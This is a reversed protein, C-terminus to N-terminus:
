KELLAKVFPADTWPVSLGEEYIVDRGESILALYKRYEEADNFHQRRAVETQAKRRFDANYKFHAFILERPSLTIDTLFHLGASVRMWPQYKLLAIKQAVFLDARSGAILRHRLASTWTPMNSFPGRGTWNSLFPERDVFGAEAFPDTKFTAKALSGKPYMDLMFIRAADVGQFDPTKLLDPLTQTQKEQWVLLEDADAVMSWKGVRFAAMLAQQWAVGYYSLSYDTDVSFLAVDPQEMLYELTGDDSCNDVILFGGVGLKRYHALFQPLMFMENRMCAVVAVEADRAADLKDQSSIMELANSQYILTVDQYSPWIKKPTLEKSQLAAMAPLQAEQADLHAMKIPAALSADFSNVWRAIPFAKSWTRRRLAVRHDEDAPRIGRLALLDGLLKDEMFSVQELYQGEPSELADLTAAMATRSVTYGSGGDAYTSPEPSKDLEFRGRESTSKENHWARDTEGRHRTLIRGHFDYKRYSLSHFFEEPNLFCDDDIKLLYGFNTNEHVWRITAMTKQPLGEYDDPADVHLVDGEIRGDGNGVIIVYPVDLAKLLSLWGERMPPIRTTLNPLCSFVTVLTDFLPSGDLKSPSDSADPLAKALTPLTKAALAYQKAAAPDARLSQLAMRPAPAYELASLREDDLAAVQTKLLEQLTKLVADHGNHRALGRILALILGLGLFQSRRGSLIRLDRELPEIQAPTVPKAPAQQLLAHLLRSARLQAQYYPARPVHPYRAPLAEAAVAVMEDSVPAAGPFAMHRLTAEETNLGAVALSATDPGQGAPLQLGSPGLLERRMRLAEPTGYRTFLELARDLGPRPQGDQASQAVLDFAERAPILAAPLPAGDLAADLMQWFQRSLGYARRVFDLFPGHTYDAFRDLNQVLQVAVGTLAVCHARSWYDWIRKDVLDMYAYLIDECAEESLGTGQIARRAVWAVAPTVTWANTPETLTWLVERLTDVRDELLLFPLLASNKWVDGPEPNLTGAHGEDLFMQQFAEFDRSPDCFFESLGLFLYPRLEKPLEQEALLALPETDPKARLIRGFRAHAQAVPDPAAQVPLPQQPIDDAKSGEPLLFAALGYTRQVTALAARAPASLLGLLGGFRIHELVQMATLADASLDLGLLIKEIQAALEPRSVRLPPCAAKGDPYRLNVVLPAGEEVSDWLRGPLLARLDTEWHPRGQHTITHLSPRTIVRPPMGVGPVDLVLGPDRDPCLLRARLELRSNLSLQDQDIQGSQSIDVDIGAPAIGGQFDVYAIRDPDPFRTRLLGKGFHFLPEGNLTVTIEPPAFVIEISAGARPLTVKQPIERAWDQGSRKNCVALGDEQRLSLHFLINAQERDYFSINAYPFESFEAKYRFRAGGQVAFSLMRSDQIHKSFDTSNHGSAQAPAVAAPRTRRILAEVSLLQDIRPGMYPDLPTRHRTQGRWLAAWGAAAAFLAQGARGRRPHAFYMQAWIARAFLRRRWGQPLRAAQDPTLTAALRDLARALQGASWRRHFQSRAPESMNVDCGPWQFYLSVPAALAAKLAVQWCPLPGTGFHIGHERLFARRYLKSSPQADLLLADHGSFAFPAAALKARSVAEEHHFACHTDGEGIGKRFASVVFDAQAKIAGDVWDHLAMEALRDGADLFTVFVGRAAQLGANRAAGPGRGPQVLVRANPLFLAVNRAQDAASENDCVILIERGPAGQLALAELSDRLLDPHQGSWPLVISLPLEGALELGWARSIHPDWEPAYRLGHAALYEACARAYRARREPERLATSREFLLRSAIKEFAEAGGSHGQTMLARMDELVAFQEFVRESDTGTIQGARGRTQLYLPEALHAIHDTRAAARYFFGHDEFWIGEPFRLGEILARRYLKNWASPFHRIADGWDALAFRAVRGSSHQAAQGHIGSHCSSVGSPFCFRIACAVWDAGTQDLVQWMQQLYGPAVRDDSDVFAIFAGRALNLGTNRAGSLGRNDQRVLRFRSDGDIARLAVQASDDTSGDDVVIVEFDPLTQARLSAICAAVHDRVDHVPVIVSILPASM